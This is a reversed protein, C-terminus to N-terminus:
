PCSRHGGPRISFLPRVVQVEGDPLQLDPLLELIRDPRQLGLDALLADAHRSSILESRGLTLASLSRNQWTAMLRSLLAQM